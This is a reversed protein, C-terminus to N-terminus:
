RKEGLKTTEMSACLRRSSVLLHRRRTRDQSPVVSPRGHSVGAEDVQVDMGLVRDEVPCAPDGRERLPRGLELHGGDREGVVTREGARDLEDALGALVADLRQDAALDVDGLVASRLPLAVRV